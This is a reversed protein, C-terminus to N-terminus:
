GYRPGTLHNIEENNLYFIYISPKSCYGKRVLSSLAKTIVKGKSMQKWAERFAVSNLKTAIRLPYASTEEGKPSAAHAFHNPSHYNSSTTKILSSPFVQIQRVENKLCCKGSCHAKDMCPKQRVGIGTKKSEPKPSSHEAALMFFASSFSPPPIISPLSVSLVPILIVPFFYCYLPSFM